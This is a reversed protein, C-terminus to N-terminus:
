PTGRWTCPSQVAVVRPDDPDTVLIPAGTGGTDFRVRAGALRDLLERLHRIQVAFRGAGATRADVTDDALDHGPVSLHLASDNPAWQLGVLRMAKITPNIVAAVRDLAQKLDARDGIVYNSSKSPLIRSYDPFVGDLLKSTFVVKTTVLAFLTRSRRLVVREVGRDALLAGVIKIAVNPVIMTRDSSLGAAGPVRTLVLRHGDTAVASLAGDHEHLLVGTLFPRPEETSAGFAPRVLLTAHERPLEVRGTEEDIALMPPLTEPAVVPLKFRSRGSAVRCVPGETQIEITAQPSFGAALASLMSASVALEGRVQVAATVNLAIACYQAGAAITLKDAAALRVAGLAAIKGSSRNGSVSDALTLAAALEGATATFKM